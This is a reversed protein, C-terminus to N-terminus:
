HNTGEKQSHPTLQHLLEEFQRVSMPLVPSIESPLIQARPNDLEVGGDGREFVINATGLSELQKEKRLGVMVLVDDRSYTTSETNM